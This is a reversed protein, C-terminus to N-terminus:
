SERQQVKPQWHSDISVEPLYVEGLGNMEFGHVYPKVLSYSKPFYLPIAHLEYLANEETIIPLTEFPKEVLPESPGGKDTKFPAMPEANATQKTVEHEATKPMGFIAWLSVAQDASPLVIGHRVVDFEHSAEAADIETLEKVTIETDLNLNQKWMRAIARAVRSQTDNRNVLLKIPALGEGNPFGAAELLKKAKVPDFASRQQQGDAVILFTGAPEAAGGLEANALQERDIAISLAERLRRDGYPPRTVDFKYLNIASYTTQRFDDYPALLKLALPEFQANTLADIEGKKYADLAADASDKAVLRVHELKVAGKNWYTDSRDLSIGTKDVLSVEFAGNTVVGNDLLGDVFEAGSGYVPRFIPAAVLKPLDYDPAVLTIKLTLDDVAEVGLKQEAPKKELKKPEGNATPSLPPDQLPQTVTNAALPRAQVDVGNVPAHTPEPLEAAPIPKAAQFGVINQFLERHATKDGLTILRKWSTVFDDATVRKGNSWKANKRLQFTWVRGDESSSWKEAAAPVAELTQTDVETLGEFLARVLDTEPAAEARAPDFSRPMKGNSWRFEQKEPPTTEAYFPEPQPRQIESCGALLCLALTLLAITKGARGSM